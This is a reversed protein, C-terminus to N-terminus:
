VKEVTATAMNPPVIAVVAQADRRTGELMRLVRESTPPVLPLGDSLGQDFMFEFEDDAPAIEIRRARLPSGAADAQLREAIDPEVSRSGCGPRWAPYNSWDVAPAPLGTLQTLAMFLAVWESQRFGVVRRLPNGGADSLILTPVIEIDYQFSVQLASDDLMPLNLQQREVLLTNDLDQGVAWVAVRSGYARYTAEILPMSIGCTPCDAKVFCLLAPRSTPFARTQGHLDRLSFAPLTCM